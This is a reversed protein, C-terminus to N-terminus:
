PLHLITGRRDVELAPSSSHLKQYIADVDSPDPVAGDIGIIIDGGALGLKAIPSGAKVSFVRVGKQTRDRTLAPVIRADAEVAKALQVVAATPVPRATKGRVYVHVVVDRSPARTLEVALSPAASLMGVIAEIHARTDPAVGNVAHVVDNSRFGLRALPSQAPVRTLALGDREPVLSRVDNAAALWQALADASVDVGGDARTRVDVGRPLADSDLAVFALM